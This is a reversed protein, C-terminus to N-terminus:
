CIWGVMTSKRQAKKSRNPRIKKRTLPLCVYHALKQFLTQTEPETLPRMKPQQPPLVQASLGIPKDQLTYHHHQTQVPRFLFNGTSPISLLQGARLRLFRLIAYKVSSREAPNVLRIGSRMCLITKQLCQIDDWM